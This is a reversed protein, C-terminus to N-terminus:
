AILTQISRSFQDPTGVFVQLMSPEQSVVELIWYGQPGKFILFADDSIFAGDRVLIKMVSGRCTLSALDAAMAHAIDVSLDGTVLQAAIQKANANLSSQGIKEFLLAPIAGVSSAPATFKHAPKLDFFEAAQRGIEERGSLASVWAVVAKDLRHEVYTDGSVYFNVIEERGAAVRTCRLFYDNQLLVGVLNALEVSLQKDGTVPDLELHGRAVLGHSAALLRGEVERQPREGLLSALYGNAVETGGLVGMAYALEEISLAMTSHKM